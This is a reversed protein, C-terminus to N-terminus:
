STYFWHFSFYKSANCVKGTLQSALSQHPHLVLSRFYHPMKHCAFSVLYAVQEDEATTKLVSPTSKLYLSSPMRTLHPNVNSIFAM